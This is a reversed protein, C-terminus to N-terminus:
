EYRQAVTSVGAAAPKEEEVGSLTGQAQKEGPKAQKAQKEHLTSDVRSFDTTEDIVHITPIAKLLRQLFWEAGRRSSSSSSIIIINSSSSTASRIAGGKDQGGIDL